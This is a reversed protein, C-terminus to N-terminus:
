KAEPSDLVHTESQRLPAKLTVTTGKGLRTKIEITGSHAEMARKIQLMGLGTGTQKTTYFPDFMKEATEESMGTGNDRVSLKFFDGETELRFIMLGGEPMAEAANRIVNIVAGSLLDDDLLAPPVPSLYQQIAIDRAHLEPEMLALCRECLKKLDTEVPRFSLPRAAKLFDEVIRKLRESESVIVDLDKAIKDKTESDPLKAVLRETLDAKMIISNLPNGLEHAVGATLLRMTELKSNRERDEATSLERSVDTFIIIAVPPDPEGSKEQLPVIRIRLRLKRPYNVDTELTLFSEHGTKDLQMLLNQDKLCDSLPLGIMSNPLFGLTDYVAANAFLVIHQESVAVIGDPLANLFVALDNM